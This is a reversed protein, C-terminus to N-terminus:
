FDIFLDKYQDQDEDDDEDDDDTDDVCCEEFNLAQALPSAPPRWEAVVTGSDVAQWDNLKFWRHQKIDHVGHRMCGYRLTLDHQVLNVILDIAELEVYSPFCILDDSLIMAITDRPDDAAFLGQGTVMEYLLVGLSWWDAGM